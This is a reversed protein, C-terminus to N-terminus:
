IGWRDTEGGLFDAEEWMGPLENNPVDDYQELVNSRPRLPMEYNYVNITNLRGKRFTRVETGLRIQDLQVTYYHGFWKTGIIKGTYHKYPWSIIKVRDGVYFKMNM